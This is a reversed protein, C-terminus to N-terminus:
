TFTYVAKWLRKEFASARAYQQIRHRRDPVIKASCVRGDSIDYFEDPRAEGIFQRVMRTDPDQCQLKKLSASTFGLDAATQSFRRWYEQNVAKPVPKRKGADKRPLMGSLEPFYRWAFMWLQKIGFNIADMVSVQRKEVRM